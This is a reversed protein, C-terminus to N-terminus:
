VAADLEATMRNLVSELDQRKQELEASTADRPVRVPPGYRVLVRAFPKPILFRDWKGPAWARSVAASVPLIPVQALQAIVLVGPKMKQMPGRPGDPTIALKRGRRLERVIQRTAESGGRSSSGRLPEFGWRNLFEALYDGDQSRSILSVMGEGRHLYGLPLLRGHWLAYIFPQGSAKLENLHETGEVEYSVTAFMPELLAAALRSAAGARTM